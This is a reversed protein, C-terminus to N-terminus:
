SEDEQVQVRQTYNEPINHPDKYIHMVCSGDAQAPSDFVWQPHGFWNITATGNWIACHSCYVPINDQGFTLPGPTNIVPLKETGEYAGSLNFQGGSGCPNQTVIFKEEDQAVEVNGMHQKLLFATTKAFDEPSMQEWKEFGTKQGEATDLHFKLLEDEGFHRYVWSFSDAMFGVLYDHLAVYQVKEKEDLWEIAAKADHNRIAAVIDGAQNKQENAFWIRIEEITDTIDNLEQDLSTRDTLDAYKFARLNTRFNYILNLLEAAANDNNYRDNTEKLLKLLVHITIGLGKVMFTFEKALSLTQGDGNVALDLAREFNPSDSSTLHKRLADSLRIGWSEISDVMAGDLLNSISFIIRFISYLAICM